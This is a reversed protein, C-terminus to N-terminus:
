LSVGMINALQDGTDSPYGADILAGLFGAQMEKNPLKSLFAMVNGYNDQTTVITTENLATLYEAAEPAFAERLADRVQVNM